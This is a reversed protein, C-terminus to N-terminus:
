DVVFSGKKLNRYYRGNKAVFHLVCYDPDDVGQHYYLTDGKRWIRKKSTSDTLVEMTGILMLGTYVFLGKHFFYLCAKPNALFQSVRLSSTNTTFYFEKMGIRERPKLMAKLNPYGEEDVSGVLSVSARALFREIENKDM